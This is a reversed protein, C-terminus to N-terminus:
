DWVGAIPEDCYECRGSKIHQDTVFFGTRAIVVKDCAPCQTNNGPHGPVNGVFPYHIGNAKAIEYAQELTAVPTPPLNLMQYDPHFRTFHVPVDAGLEGMVWKVLDTLMKKSDNLTPVVLNVIELHVGSKHVQKISRLVPKLEASSVRRYFDESFGKLDIKIADLVDCMEELPKENMFGCSILVSAINQKRAIRAIDTLYETFVTPENYTFAIIPARHDTTANVIKEPPIFRTDYDEPSAQSIEWNQCFKCSLPCGTTALSFAASAPRFHFFPKKEIPDVHISVPRGYVLSRLKGSVNMRSRCQGRAGEEILCERACLLCKVFRKEHAYHTGEVGDDEAHCSLCRVGESNASIWYRALPADKLLKDLPTSAAAAAGVLHKFWPPCSLAIGASGLVIGLRAATELFERRSFKHSPPTPSRNEQAPFM